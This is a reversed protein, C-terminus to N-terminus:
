QSAEKPASTEKQTSVEKAQKSKEKKEKRAAKKAAAKEAELRKQEKAADGGYAEQWEELKAAPIISFLPRPEGLAHGEKLTHAAWTDHISAVTEVGLQEFIGESTKPMFPSLLNAILHIHNLATGVVNACHEPTEVLLRNDLKNDQLFKNGLTSIQLITSLGLRLKMTELHSIYTTLLANVNTQHEESVTYRPVVAGMKAHVFKIVRNVLNGINKLLDNNNGSIFEEWKFETDTGSEPRRSLLYYRWIDADIGTDRANNGFVGVGKSKSFKGGEYNLYETASIHRVQTWNEDTGIQSAPFVISHFSVNDKGLFHFLEVDKPNKWWQEWNRGDLNDGDTYCKTISPYGICADFWVYFVKSAYEEPSLGEVDPIPVGWRLDRTIARPHLGKDIWAQTITTANLTWGLSAEKFWTVVKDSLSDLRLFLHRTSRKLPKSGDLKCRPNLLYGTGKSDASEVDQPIKSSDATSEPEFPDMLRGCSDCQDGRADPAHCLSCEGEIFRDALFSSHVECYPQVTEREEIYGNAWLKKFIDQVIDTHQTTPTQGFIDFDIRFWDYIEKHIKHYKACLTAPDVGEEYAKTESATGYQDTGCVYLTRLGRARFYRAAADASLTSGILNGLHPTANSYPLASTILINREGAVPLVPETISAM